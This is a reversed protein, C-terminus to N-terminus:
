SPSVTVERPAEELAQGDESPINKKGKNCMTLIRRPLAQTWQRRKKATCRLLAQKQTSGLWVDPLQPDHDSEGEGPEGFEPVKLKEQVNRAEPRWGRRHNEAPSVEAEWHKETIPLGFTSM